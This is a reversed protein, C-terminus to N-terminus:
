NRFCFSFPAASWMVHESCFVSSRLAPNALTTQTTLFASQVNEYMSSIPGQKGRSLNFGAPTASHKSEEYTVQASPALMKKTPASMSAFDWIIAPVCNGSQAQM